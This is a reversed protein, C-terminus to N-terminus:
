PRARSYEAFTSATERIRVCAVTVGSPLDLNATCWEYLLRALYESTPAGDVVENLDRHDFHEALYVGVPSLVAFDVVFGPPTLEGDTSVEVEVTYSHGHPRSCKHEAPLDPLHHAAEFRFTKGIRFM